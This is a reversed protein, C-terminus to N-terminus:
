VSITNVMSNFSAISKYLESGSENHVSSLYNKYDSLSSFTYTSGNETASGGKISAYLLGKSTDYTYNYTFTDTYSGSYSRTVTFTSSTFAISRSSGSSSAGWTKGTFPNTGSSSPLTVSSGFSSSSSDDDDDSSDSSCASFAFVLASILLLATIWKHSFIKRM